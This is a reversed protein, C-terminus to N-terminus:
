DDGLMFTNDRWNYPEKTKTGSKAIYTSWKDLYGDYKKPLDPYRLLFRGQDINDVIAQVWGKILPTKAEAQICVDVRDGPKIELRWKQHAM